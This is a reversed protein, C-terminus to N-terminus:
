DEEVDERIQRLLAVADDDVPEGWRKGAMNLNRDDRRIQNLDEPKDKGM